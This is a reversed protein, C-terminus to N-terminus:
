HMLSSSIPRKKYDIVAFGIHIGQTPIFKVIEKEKKEKMKNQRNNRESRILSLSLPRKTYGIVSCGIVTHLRYEKPRSSSEQKIKRRERIMNQRDNEGICPLSLYISRKKFIKNHIVQTPIFKVKMEMRQKIMTQKDNGGICISSLSIPRKKYGILAFGIVYRRLQSSSEQKM